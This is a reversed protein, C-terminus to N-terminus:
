FTYHPVILVSCCLLSHRILSVKRRPASGYFVLQWLNVDTLSDANLLVRYTTDRIANQHMKHPEFNPLRWSAVKGVITIPWLHRQKTVKRDGGEGALNKM